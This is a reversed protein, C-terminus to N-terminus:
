SNNSKNNLDDDTLEDLCYNLTGLEWCIKETRKFYNIWDTYNYDPHVGGYREPLYKPDIHQHLSEMNDGHIFVRERMQENMLPKFFNFIMEFIWPQNIVHVAHVRM